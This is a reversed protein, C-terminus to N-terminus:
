VWSGSRRILRGGTGLKFRAIGAGSGTNVGGLDLTTMGQEKLELMARWLILNHAGSKRGEESSWGIHYTAMQGHTLFLMAAAADRGADARWIKLGAKRDAGASKQKEAQWLATMEPPLGRYGKSQRQAKEKEILWQYQGAKLGSATFSLDSKEAAVLRNRWKGDLGARLAAEDQTLDIRITADGTMLKSFGRPVLDDDLTFVVLRPWRLRIARRLAKLALQKEEDALDTLWVPGYSCVAFQAVLAFPRILLQVLGCLEGSPATVTFRSVKAGQAAMVEGYAWDQQYPAACDALAKDWQARTLTNQQIDFTRSM